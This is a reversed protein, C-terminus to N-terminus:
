HNTTGSSGQQGDSAGTSPQSSGTRSGQDANSSVRVNGGGGSGGGEGISASNGGGQQGGQANQGADRVEIRRSGQQQPNRKLRVTLVGNQFDANVQEPDPTFPLQVSRTFRGYSREMVHYNTNASQSPDDESKKEGSITLMDGDLRVDVDSSKVGPLEAAVCVENDKERVDFSPMAMLGSGQRGASSGAGPGLLDDFMRNMERYLGVIPDGASRALPVSYRSAM